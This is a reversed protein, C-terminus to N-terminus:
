DKFRKLRQPFNHFKWEPTVLSSINEVEYWPSLAMNNPNLLIHIDQAPMYSQALLMYKKGNQPNVAMDMVIVAHGPFGGQIIIDGPQLQNLSVSPLERELSATGCFRFVPILYEKLAKYSSDAKAKKTWRVSNGKVVPRMGKMWESFTADTGNTFRFAIAAKRNAAFLYEARLRMTADACQQLDQKGVDVDLVAFQVSQNPKRAGNYYLVMNSQKLKVSRLWTAFSAAPYEIRKCGDPLAIEGVQTASTYRMPEPYDLQLSKYGKAAFLWYGSALVACLFLFLVIKNRM